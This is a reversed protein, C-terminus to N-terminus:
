AQLQDGFNNDIWALCQTIEYINLHAEAMNGQVHQIHHELQEREVVDQTDQLQATLEDHHQKLFDLLFEQQDLQEEFDDRESQICQLCSCPEEVQEGVAAMNQDDHAM